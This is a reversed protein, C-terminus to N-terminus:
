IKSISNESAKAKRKKKLFHKPQKCLFVVFSFDKLFCKKNEIKKEECFNQKNWSIPPSFNPFDNCFFLRIKQSSLINKITRSCEVYHSNSEYIVCKKKIIKTKYLQFIILKWISQFKSSDCMKFIIIFCWEM